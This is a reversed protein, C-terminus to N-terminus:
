GTAIIGGHVLANKLPIVKQLAGKKTKLYLDHMITISSPM